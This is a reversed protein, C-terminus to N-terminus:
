RGNEKGFSPGSFLALLIAGISVTASAELVLILVGAHAPPYEMLRGRLILTVAAMIVFAAPGLVVVLRLPFGAASVGDRRRGSLVLVVGLAALVAGAQFAGGPAYAGVWLLYGAVLIALPTLFRALAEQVAGVPACVTSDHVTAGISRAGILALLLM